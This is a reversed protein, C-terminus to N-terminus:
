GARLVPDYPRWDELKTQPHTPVRYARTRIRELSTAGASVVPIHRFSTTAYFMRYHFFNKQVILDARRPAVGLEKWFSPHIPLPPGECLAVHFSGIDLRVRRGHQGDHREAITAEVQVEPQQYGPTGKLTITRESGLPADWCAEVAAPDHLPLLARLGRDDRAMAQLFHTNGGPAGAGVIDDVDVLTVPGLKRWPSSAVEDIAEDVSRMPPLVVDRQQWAREALETALKNALAEDNDTCVHAAWGLDDASTYPHVMFLSASLVRPDRELRKM